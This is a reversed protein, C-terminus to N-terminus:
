EDIFSKFYNKCIEVNESFQKSNNVRAVMVQPVQVGKNYLIYYSILLRNEYDDLVEKKSLEKLEKIGM